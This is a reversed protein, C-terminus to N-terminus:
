GRVCWDGLFTPKTHSDGVVSPVEPLSLRWLRECFSDGFSTHRTHTTMAAVFRRSSSIKRLTACVGGTSHAGVGRASVRVGRVSLASEVHPEALEVRPGPVGRVGRPAPLCYSTELFKLSEGSPTTSASSWLRRGRSTTTSLARNRGTVHRSCPRPVPKKGGMWRCFTIHSQPDFSCANRLAASLFNQAQEFAMHRSDVASHVPSDRRIERVQSHFILVTATQSQSGMWMYEGNTYMVHESKSSIMPAQPQNLKLKLPCM